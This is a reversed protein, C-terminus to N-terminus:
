YHERRKGHIEEWRARNNRHIYMHYSPYGLMDAAKRLQRERPISWNVWSKKYFHIDDMYSKNRAM